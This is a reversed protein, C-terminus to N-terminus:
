EARPREAQIQAAWHGGWGGGYGDHLHGSEQISANNEGEQESHETHDEDAAVGAPAAGVSAASGVQAGIVRLGLQLVGIRVEGGFEVAESPSFEAQGHLSQEETGAARGRGAFGRLGEAEGEEVGEVGL